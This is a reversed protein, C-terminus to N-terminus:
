SDATKWVVFSFAVILTGLLSMLLTPTLDGTVPVPEASGSANPTSSTTPRPTATPRPTSTLLPTASSVPTKTALPTPTPTTGSSSASFSPLESAQVVFDRTLSRTIGTADIWSVTISHAGPELNTPPTWAWSGNGPITLTQTIPTQSHVTITIKEGGPGKGLFQPQTASVVEGENINEIIVSTSKTSASVTATNFKSSQTATEPLQLNAGPNQNDVTPQLSRLDYVQGMVMPPIPQASQPFIQASSIGDPGAQVSIELLTVKPDITLYSQLDSSRANGLQIVFNGTDSTLTSELYGGVNLYVLARKEPAGSTTIVSGSIPYSVPSIGLNAGTTFQWPLGNNDYSSGESNIKFYYSTNEKLGTITISHIFYKQNSTDETLVNSISSQSGGWILFDTTSGDTTWSISASTDSINSVRVDKPQTQPSAGIRFVQTMSLYFVGLFTGALLIIVGLITPITNKKIM